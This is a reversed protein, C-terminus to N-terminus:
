NLNHKITIKCKDSEIWYLNYPCTLILQKERTTHEVMSKTSAKPIGINYIWQFGQITPITTTFYDHILM